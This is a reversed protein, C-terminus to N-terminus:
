KSGLYDHWALECYFKYIFQKAEERDMGYCGQYMGKESYPSSQSVYMAIRLTRYQRRAACKDAVSLEMNDLFVWAERNKTEM